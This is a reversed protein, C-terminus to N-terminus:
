QEHWQKKKKKKVVVIACIGIGALLGCAFAKIGCGGRQADVAQKEERKEETQVMGEQVTKKEKTTASNRIHEKSKETTRSRETSDANLVITVTQTERLTDHVVMSGMEVMTDHKM